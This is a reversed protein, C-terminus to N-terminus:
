LFTISQLIKEFDGLFENNNDNYFTAELFIVKGEMPWYVARKELGSPDRFAGTKIANKGGIETETKKGAALENKKLFDTIELSDPNPLEKIDILVALSDFYGYLKRNYKRVNIQGTDELKWDGPYKLELFRGRYTAWGEYGPENGIESLKKKDLIQYYAEKLSGTIHVGSINVLGSEHLFSYLTCVLVVVVFIISFILVILVLNNYRWTRIARQYRYEAKAEVKPTNDVRKKYGRIFGLGLVIREKEKEKENEKNKNESM